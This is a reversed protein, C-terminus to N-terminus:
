EVNAITTSALDLSRNLMNCRPQIPQCVTEVASNLLVSRINFSINFGNASTNVRNSIFNGKISMHLKTGVPTLTCSYRLFCDSKALQFIMCPLYISSFHRKKLFKKQKKTKKPKTQQQQQNAM